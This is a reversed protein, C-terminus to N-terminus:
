AILSDAITPSTKSPLVLGQRGLQFFREFDLAIEGGNSSSINNTVACTFEDERRFATAGSVMQYYPNGPKDQYMKAITVEDVFVESNNTVNGSFRIDAVVNPGVSVPTFVTSTFLQYSTTMDGTAVALSCARDLVENNLITGGSDRLTILLSVGPATSNRKVAATITYACDPHILGASQTQNNLEQKINPNTSGDGSLKLANTGRYPDAVLEVHTGATGTVRTWRDPVNSTFEEYDSNALVNEGERRGHEKRASVVVGSGRLGSGKPWEQDFVGVSRQGKIMYRENTELITGSNSDATITARLTESKVSPMDHVLANTLHRVRAMDSVVMIGNGTNSSAATGKGDTPLTVYGASPRKVCEPTSEDRMQRTLELMAEGEVLRSLTADNDLMRVLTTSCDSRISSMLPLLSNKHGEIGALLSPIFNDYDGDSAAADGYEAIVSEFQDLIAVRDARLAEAFGFLKGLRKFVGNSASFGVTM